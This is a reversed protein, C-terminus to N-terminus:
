ELVNTKRSLECFEAPTAKEFVPTRIATGWRPLVARPGGSCM